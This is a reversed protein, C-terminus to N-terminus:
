PLLWSYARLWIKPTSHVEIPEKRGVMHHGWGFGHYSHAGEVCKKDDGCLYNTLWENHSQIHIWDVGVREEVHHLIRDVYSIAVMVNNINDNDM